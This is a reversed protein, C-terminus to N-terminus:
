VPTTTTTTTTAITIINSVALHNCCVRPWPWVRLVSALLKVEPTYKLPRLMKALLQGTTLKLKHYKKQHIAPIAVRDM